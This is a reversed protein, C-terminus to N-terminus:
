IQGLTVEWLATTLISLVIWVMEKMMLGSYEVGCVVHRQRACVSDRGHFGSVDGRVGFLDYPMVLASVKPFPVDARLRM